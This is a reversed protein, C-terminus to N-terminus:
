FIILKIIAESFGVAELVKRLFIWDVRDYAKEIDLKVAMVGKRGLKKKM